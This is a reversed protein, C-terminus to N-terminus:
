LQCSNKVNESLSINMKCGGIELLVYYQAGVIRWFIATDSCFANVKDIYFRKTPICIYCTRAAVCYWGHIKLM